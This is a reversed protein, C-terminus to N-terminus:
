GLISKASSGVALRSPAEALTIRSNNLCSYKFFRKILVVATGKLVRLVNIAKWPWPCALIVFSVMYAPNSVSKKSFFKSLFRGFNEEKLDHYGVVGENIFLKLAPDVVLKFGLRYARMTFEYDSHYHPLLLPHFGGIAFLDSASMFLGRTALCNIEESSDPKVFKWDWKRYDVRVGGRIFEGSSRSHCAALLLTRPNKDLISVAKEFFDPAFETDDNIMLVIDDASVPSSRLWQYGRHLSGGWWLEGGGRIVTSGPVISSVAIVTGDRSGDDVVVLHYNKYTQAALCKLFRATTEVRNHVPLLVYIKKM